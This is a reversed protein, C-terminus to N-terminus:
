TRAPRARRAAGGVHGRPLWTSRRHAEGRLRRDGFGLFRGNFEIIQQRVTVTQRLPDLDRRRVALMESWRLGTYAAFGVWTSFWPHIAIALDRIAAPEIVDIEQARESPLPVGRCPSRGIMEMVVADGMVKRFVSFRRRVASPPTGDAVM